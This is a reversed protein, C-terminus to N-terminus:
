KLRMAKKLLENMRLQEKEIIQYAESYEANWMNEETLVRGGPLMEELGLTQLLSITRNSMDIVKDAIVLKRDCLLFPKGMLISFVTGHFSDTCVISAKNFLYLFESPGASRIVPDNKDLIRYEKMGREQIAADLVQRMEDSVEEEENGLFYYLVFPADEDLGPLPKAMSLWEDKNVMFTPDLVVEADRGTLQKIIEAGSKERINLNPYKRLEKHYLEKWKDDLEDMGISPAFCVRQDPRAFALLRNELQGLSDRFQPNWVQDSGTVFFDYERVTEDDFHVKDFYREPIYSENFEEYRFQRVILPNQEQARVPDDKYIERVQAELKERYPTKSWQVPILTESDVGLKLLTSFVAYNQLRNGYNNLGYLTIIGANM